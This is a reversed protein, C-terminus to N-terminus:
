KRSDVILTVETNNWTLATHHELTNLVSVQDEDVGIFQIVGFKLVVLHRLEKCHITPDFGGWDLGGPQLMHSLVQDELQITFQHLAVPVLEVQFKNSFQSIVQSAEIPAFVHLISHFLIHM